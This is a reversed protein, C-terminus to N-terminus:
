SRCPQQRSNAEAARRAGVVGERVQTNSSRRRSRPRGCGVRGRRIDTTATEAPRRFSALTRGDQGLKHEVELPCRPHTAGRWPSAPKSFRRAVKPLRLRIMDEELPTRTEGDRAARPFALALPMPLLPRAHGLVWESVVPCAPARFYGRQHPGAPCGCSTVGRDAAAVLAVGV